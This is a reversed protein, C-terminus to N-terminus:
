DVNIDLNLWAEADVEVEPKERRSWVVDAEEFARWLGACLMGEVSDDESITICVRATEATTVRAYTSEITVWVETSPDEINETHFHAFVIVTLATATMIEAMRTISVDHKWSRPNENRDFIDTSARFVRDVTAGALIWSGAVALRGSV